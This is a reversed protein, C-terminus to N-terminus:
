VFDPIWDWVPIIFIGVQNNSAQEHIRQPKMNLDIMKNDMKAHEDSYANSMPVPSVRHTQQNDEVTRKPPQNPGKRSEGPDM